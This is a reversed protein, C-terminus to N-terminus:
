ESTGSPESPIKNWALPLGGVRQLVHTVHESVEFVGEGEAHGGPGVFTISSLMTGRSARNKAMSTIRKYDPGSPSSTYLVLEKLNPCLVIKPPNQEPDLARVFFRSTCDVLTLMRLNNASSFTQFFPYEEVRASKRCKYGSIALREITSLIPDSLSRLIQDDITYSSSVGLRERRAIVCLSGSPGSLQVSKKGPTLLLHITTVHSLNGFNPLNEPFDGLLPPQENGVRLESILSAGVPIRLHHLLISHPPKANITFVELHPLPVIRKLPADSSDPMLYALNVTHLLPASEFLDLLQTTAYEHTYSTIDVARLNALNKWPPVAAIGKLRLERLSSPDGGFLAVDLGRDNIAFVSIDLKELLPTNCRFHHLVRPLWVNADVTLSKLRCIHPIVLTFAEHIAQLPGLYMKLPSSQSRQIYTRTKDLNKFDLRTWLSSRSTFAKRWSRCVHTLTILARDHDMKDEGGGDGEGYYDPILSLVEPPIQNIPAFSNRISRILCLVELTDLELSDVQFCSTYAMAHSSM